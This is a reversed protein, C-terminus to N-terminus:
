VVMRAIACPQDSYHTKGDSSTCKWVQAQAGTAACLSLLGGIVALHIKQM